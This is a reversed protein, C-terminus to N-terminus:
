CNVYRIPNQAGQTIYAEVSGGVYSRLKEAITGHFRWRKQTQQAEERAVAPEWSQILYVERVIGNYVAFAYKAKERRTGIVWNGRTAEYLEDPSMGRRFLRNITILIAPESIEIRPADYDSVLEDITRPGRNRSHHGAVINTLAPLRVFDVLAAEVEFAQDETLGHRHIVHEVEYGGRHIARIRDLKANERDEILSENLHAFIRNAVGKGIYFIEGDRPDRLLYVYFGIAEIVAAPFSEFRM